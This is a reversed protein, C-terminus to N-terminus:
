SQAMPHCTSSLTHYKGSAKFNEKVSSSSRPTSYFFKKEKRSSKKSSETIMGNKTREKDLKASHYAKQRWEEPKAIQKLQNRSALKIDM